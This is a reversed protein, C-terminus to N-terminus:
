SCDHTHARSFTEVRYAPRDDFTDKPRPNEGDGDGCGEGVDEHSDQSCEAQDDSFARAVPAVSVGDMKMRRWYIREREEQMRLAACLLEEFLCPLVLEPVLHSPRSRFSRPSAPDGARAAGFQPGCGSGEIAAEVPFAHVLEEDSFWVVAGNCNSGDAHCKPLFGARRIQTPARSKSKGTATRHREQSIGHVGKKAERLGKAQM